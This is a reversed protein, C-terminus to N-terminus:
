SKKVIPGKDERPYRRPSLQTFLKLADHGTSGSKLAQLLEEARSADLRLRRLNSKRTLDTLRQAHTIFEKPLPADLNGLIGDIGKLLEAVSRRIRPDRMMLYAIHPTNRDVLNWWDQLGKYKRFQNDRFSRMASLQKSFKGPSAGLFTAESGKGALISAASNAPCSETLAMAGHIEWDGNSEWRKSFGLSGVRRDPQDSTVFQDQNFVFTQNGIQDDPNLWSWIDEFINQQDQIADSVADDIGQTVSDIDEQTIMTHDAGLSQLVRDIASHVAANLAQHGAEAGDDSVNDEEMLVVVVGFFGPVDEGLIPQLSPAVPIPIVSNAFLGLEAPIFVTDGEEVDDRNLNGHSGPTPFTMASGEIKGADSVMLSAGDCKFFITWLYPEADGIGDGEDHCDLPNLNILWRMTPRAM